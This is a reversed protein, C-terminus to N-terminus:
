RRNSNLPPVDVDKDNMLNFDAINFGIGHFCEMESVFTHSAEGFENIVAKSVVISGPSLGLGGSTGVRIFIVDKAEAYYLLKFLEHLLISVSPAGMGHGVCLVPGAKFM